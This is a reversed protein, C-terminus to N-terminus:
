FLSQVLESGYREYSAKTTSLEKQASEQASEPPWTGKHLAEIAHRSM